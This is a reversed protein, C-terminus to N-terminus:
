NAGDKADKSDIHPNKRGKMKPFDYEKRLEDKSIRRNYFWDILRLAAEEMSIVTKNKSMKRVCGVYTDTTDYTLDEETKSGLIEALM